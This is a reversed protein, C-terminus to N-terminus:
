QQVTFKFDTDAMQNANSILKNPESWNQQPSPVLNSPNLKPDHLQQYTQPSIKKILFDCLLQIFSNLYGSFIFFKFLM